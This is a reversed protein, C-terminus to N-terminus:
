VNSNLRQLPTVAAAEAAAEAGLSLQREVFRGGGVM